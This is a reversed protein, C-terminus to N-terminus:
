VDLIVMHEKDVIVLVEDESMMVIKSSGDVKREEELIMIQLENQCNSNLRKAKLSPQLFM